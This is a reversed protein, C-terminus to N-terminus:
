AEVTIDAESSKVAPEDPLSNIDLYIHAEYCATFVLDDLGMSTMAEHIDQDSESEWHCFFFDDDGIWNQVLQCKEFNWAELKEKDTKSSWDDSNNFDRFAEKTKDSHFTHIAIYRKRTM